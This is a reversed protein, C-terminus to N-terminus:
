KTKESRDLKPLLEIKVWKFEPEIALAVRLHERAEAFKDLELYIKGMWAHLEIRGWRPRLSDPVTEHRFLRAAKQLDTLAKEKGGGFLKPTFYKGVGRLLYLRPNKSNLKEAIKFEQASRPGMTMALFPNTSIKMGYCSALLAHSEPDSKNLKISKQLYRIAKELHSKVMKNNATEMFYNAFRYNALGSYYNLLPNNRHQSRGEELLSLGQDLQDKNSHVFGEEILKKGQGILSDLEQSFSSTWFNLTVNFAFFLLLILRKM